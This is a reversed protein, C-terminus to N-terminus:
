LTKISECDLLVFTKARGGSDEDGATHRLTRAPCLEGHGQSHLTLLVLRKVPIGGPLAGGAASGTNRLLSQTLM